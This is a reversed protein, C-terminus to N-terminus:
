AARAESTFWVGHESRMPLPSSLKLATGDMTLDFSLVVMREFFCEWERGSFFFDRTAM